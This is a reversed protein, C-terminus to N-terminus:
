QENSRRFMEYIYDYEWTWEFSKRGHYNSTQEYEWACTKTELQIVALVM